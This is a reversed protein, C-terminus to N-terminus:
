NHRRRKVTVTIGAAFVGLPIVAALLISWVIAMTETIALASSAEVQIIDIDYPLVNKGFLYIASFLTDRNSFSGNDIAEKSAYDTSGCALAYAAVSEGQEYMWNAHTLTLVASPATDALALYDALYEKIMEEVYDEAYERCKEAIEEQSLGEKEYEEHNAEYFEDYASQYYKTRYEASISERIPAEYAARYEEYLDADFVRYGGNQFHAASLAPALFAAGLKYSTVGEMVMSSEEDFSWKPNMRITRSRGFFAKPLTELTLLSSTLASGPSKTNTEYRAFYNYGDETVAGSAVPDKTDVKVINDEFGIGWFDELYEDLNPKQETEPDIFVMLNHNKRNLFKRLRTIENAEDSCKFDSKTGFLIVVGARGYVADDADEPFDRKSLDIKEIVYGADRFLKALAEAKGFDELDGLPGIDEGHGEVFYAIPNEGSLSLLTSTFKDDGRFYMVDSSISFFDDRQMTRYTVLGDVRNEMIIHLPGLSTGISMAFHERIYDADDSADLLDVKIFPYEKEFYKALNYIYSMGWTNSNEGKQHGYLEYNELEDPDALFYITIDNEDKDIGDLLTRSYDSIKILDNPSTDIVWLFRNALLSFVINFLIVAVLVLATIAVSIAGHKLRKNEM